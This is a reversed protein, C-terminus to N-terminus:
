RLGPIHRMVRLIRTVLGAYREESMSPPPALPMGRQVAVTQAETYKLIGEAGHRRGAGSEKMGGIPAATATWTAAYTDNINVTGTQLRRAVAMASRLDKSWVSANLGYPTDNVRAITEDLNAYPYLAVVPGFTEEAYVIMEPTVGELVTPEYFLPGLEPRPQGGALLRAGKEIADTIHRQVTTLQSQVTLSGMDIGYRLEPSLKLEKVRRVFRERFANYLREPIWAREISVCVQGAGVFAGRVLGDVAADVDALELVLMSNKGGLELSFGILREAAQRAVV